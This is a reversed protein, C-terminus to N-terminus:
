FSSVNKNYPSYLKQEINSDAARVCEVTSPNVIRLDCLAYM